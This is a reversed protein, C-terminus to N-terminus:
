LATEPGCVHEEQRYQVQTGPRGHCLSGPHFLHSVPLALIHLDLAIGWSSVDGPVAGPHPARASLHGPLAQSTPACAGDAHGNFGNQGALRVRWPCSVQATGWNYSARMRALWLTLVALYWVALVPIARPSIPLSLTLTLHARWNQTGSVRSASPGQVWRMRVIAKETISTM